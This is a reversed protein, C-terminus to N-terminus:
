MLNKLCLISSKISSNAWLGLYAFILFPLWYYITLLKTRASTKYLLQKNQSWALYIIRFIVLWLLFSGLLTMSSFSISSTMVGIVGFTILYLYIPKVDFNSNWCFLLLALSSTCSLAMHFYPKELFFPLLGSLVLPLLCFAMAVKTLLGLDDKKYFITMLLLLGIVSGIQMLLPAASHNRFTDITASRFTAIWTPSVTDSLISTSLGLLIVVSFFSEPKWENRIYELVSNLLPM